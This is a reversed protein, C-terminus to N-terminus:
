YKLAHYQLILLEMVQLDLILMPMMGWYFWKADIITRGDINWMKCSKVNPYLVSLNKVYIKETYVIEFLEPACKDGRTISYKRYVRSNGGCLFIEPLDSADNFNLSTADIQVPKNKSM